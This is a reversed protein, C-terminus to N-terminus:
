EHTAVVLVRRLMTATTGGAEDIEARLEDPDAGTEAALEALEEVASHAIDVGILSASTQAAVWLAPGGRGCGVDVLLGGDDGFTSEFIQAWDTTM